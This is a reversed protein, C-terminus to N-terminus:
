RVNDFVMLVAFILLITGTTRSITRSVKPDALWRRAVVALWALPAQWLTNIIILTVGLTLLQAPVNDREPDIFNPMLALFLLIVKPNLLNTLAADRLAKAGSVPGGGVSFGLAGGSRFGQVGLWALYAAGTLAVARFLVPSSAIILSIGAIALGTHVILGLQVGAVAALGVRQGSSLAYRIILVTDPGPTMVLASVAIIFAILNTPDVPM